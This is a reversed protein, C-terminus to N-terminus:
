LLESIKSNINEIKCDIRERNERVSENVAEMGKRLKADALAFLADIEAAQQEAVAPAAANNRSPRPSRRRSAVPQRVPERLGEESVAVSDAVLVEAMQVSDQQRVVVQDNVALRPAESHRGAFVIALAVSAAVPLMWWVRRRIRTGDVCERAVATNIEDVLEPMDALPGANEEPVLSRFFVADSEMDEPISSSTSFFAILMELDAPSSDGDYWRGLADRVEKIDFTTKM